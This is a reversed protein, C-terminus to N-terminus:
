GEVEPSEYLAISELPVGLQRSDGRSRAELWPPAFGFLHGDCPLSAPLNFHVKTSEEVAEARIPSVVTHNAVIRIQRWFERGRFNPINLVLQTPRQTGNCRIGFAPQTWRFRHGSYEEIPYSNILQARGNKQISFSADDQGLQTLAYRVRFYSTTKSWFDVFYYYRRREPLLPNGACVKAWWAAFAYRWLLSRHGLVRGPLYKLAIWAAALRPVLKMKSRGLVIRILSSLTLREFEQSYHIAQGWEPPDGFFETCFDNNGYEARFKCEGYTFAKIFDELLSFNDGYLHAVGVGPAYGLSYGSKKLEAAFLWEAFRVYQHKLGGMALYVERKIATGRMMVKVWSGPKSWERFGEDYMRGEMRAIANNALTVTRPCFGHDQSHKFYEITESVAEPEAICHPETFLIVRGTACRAGLDYHVIENNVPRVIFQDQPRLLPRIEPELDATKEDLLVILEFAHPDCRQDDTWSRVANLGMGRHDEMPLIVSVEPGSEIAGQNVDTDESDETANFPLPTGAGDARDITELLKVTALDRDVSAFEDLRNEAVAQHLREYYHDLACEYDAVTNEVIEDSRQGHRRLKAYAAVHAEAVGNTGEVVVRKQLRPSLKPLPKPALLGFQFSGEVGSHNRWTATTWARGRHALDPQYGAPIPVLAALAKLDDCGFADIWGNWDPRGIVRLALDILHSGQDYPSGFCSARISQM